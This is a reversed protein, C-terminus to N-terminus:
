LLPEPQELLSELEDMGEQAEVPLRLGKPVYPAPLSARQEANLDFPHWRECGDPPPLIEKARQKAIQKQTGFYCVPLGQGPCLALIKKTPVFKRWLTKDKRKRATKLGIFTQTQIELKGCYGQERWLQFLKLYNIDRKGFGRHKAVLKGAAYHFYIGPQFIALWDAKQESWGGLLDDEPLDLKCMTSLGDTAFALVAEPRQMAAALLRAQTSATILGAWVYSQYAPRKKGRGAVGQATKGYLSNLGLKLVIQRYDGAAKLRKREEYLPAVWEFPSQQHYSGFVWGRLVRVSAGFHELAVRVLPAWYYGRGSRPYWIAGSETRWPFPYIGSESKPIDWECEYLAWEESPEYQLTERWEGHLSPLRATVAPYASNIDYIYVEKDFIGIQCTQIRGGYYARMVADTPEGVNSVHEQIGHKKLLANALAGAGHWSRLHLSCADLAGRLKELMASLLQCELQCYSLVDSFAEEEFSGRREKMKAVLEVEEPTGIKNDTIAKVFSSQFFGFTDYVTVSAVRQWASELGCHLWRGKSLRFLKGPLWNIRYVENDLTWRTYGEDCLQDKCEDPLDILWNNIDYNIAFGVLMERKSSCSLLFDFCEKSTLGRENHAYKGNSTALLVYRVIGNEEYGEGDIGVFSSRQSATPKKKHPKKKDPNPAKESRTLLARQESASLSLFYHLNAAPNKRSNNV